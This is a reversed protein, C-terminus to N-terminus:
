RTWMDVHKPRPKNVLNAVENPSLVGTRKRRGRRCRERSALWCNEARDKNTYRVVSIANCGYYVGMHEKRSLRFCCNSISAKNECSLRRRRTLVGQGAVMIEHHPNLYNPGNAENVLASDSIEATFTRIFSTFVRGGRGTIIERVIIKSRFHISGQIPM